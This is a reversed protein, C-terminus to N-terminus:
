SADYDASAEPKVKRRRKRKHGGGPAQHTEAPIEGDDQEDELKRKSGIPMPNLKLKSKAPQSVASKKKKVSLPNPGKPGKKRTKPLETQQVSAPLKVLESEAPHLAAEDAKVFAILLLSQSRSM